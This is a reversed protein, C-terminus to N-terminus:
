QPVVHLMDHDATNLDASVFSIHGATDVRYLEQATNALTNNTDFSKTTIHFIVSTASDADITYSSTATGTVTSKTKDAYSRTSGLAGSDNVHAATPLTYSTTIITYEGESDIDGV